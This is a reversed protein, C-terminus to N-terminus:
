EQSLAAIDFEGNAVGLVFAQWEHQTFELIPGTGRAKTDRVGIFGDSYAAEVCGGSDSCTSKRWTANDWAIAM